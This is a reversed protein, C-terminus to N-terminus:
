INQVVMNETNRRVNYVAMNTKFDTIATQHIVNILDNITIDTLNAMFISNIDYGHLEKQKKIDINDQEFFKNILDRLNKTEDNNIALYEYCEFM